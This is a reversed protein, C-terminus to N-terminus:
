MKPLMYFIALPIFCRTGEKKSDTMLKTARWLYGQRVYDARPLTPDLLLSHIM